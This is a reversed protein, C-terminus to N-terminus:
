NLYNIFLIFLYIFLIFLYFIFFLFYFIFGGIIGQMGFDCLFIKMLIKLDRKLFQDPVLLIIKYSNLLIKRIGCYREFVISLLDILHYSISQISHYEGNIMGIHLQGRKIPQIIEYDKIISPFKMLKIVENGIYIKRKPLDNKSDNKM